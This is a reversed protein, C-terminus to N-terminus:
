LTIFNLNESYKERLDRYAENVTYLKTKLKIALALYSSDLITIGEAFSISCALEYVENFSHMKIGYLYISEGIDKLKSEQVSSALFRITELVEYPMINLSSLEFKGELHDDRIRIALDSYDDIAYWRYVISADIVIEM